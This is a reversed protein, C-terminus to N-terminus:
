SWPSQSAPPDPQAPAPVAYQQAPPPGYGQQSDRLEQVEASLRQIQDGLMTATVDASQQSVHDSPGYGYGNDYPVSSYDSYGYYPAYLYGGAVYGYEHHRHNGGRDGRNGSGGGFYGPGLRLAGPNIGIPTPGTPPVAGHFQRFGGAPSAPAHAGRLPRRRGCAACVVFRCVRALAGM